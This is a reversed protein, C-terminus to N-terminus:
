KKDSKRQAVKGGVYGAILAYLINQGFTPRVAGGVGRIFERREHPNDIKGVKVYWPEWGNNAM